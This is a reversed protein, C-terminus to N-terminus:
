TINKFNSNVGNMLFIIYTRVYTTIIILITKNYLSIFHIWITIDFYTLINEYKLFRKKIKTCLDM